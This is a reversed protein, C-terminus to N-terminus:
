APRTGDLLELIGLLPILVWDPRSNLEYRLEYVAKELLLVDLLTQFDERRAPLFAAGHSADLYGRLFAASVWRRWIALRAELPARADSGEPVVGRAVQARAATHVAYHFSRLMGAVDRLAPRKLRRESLTRAPEGEFDIIVFDKGTYLVQGLHYDGHCRTRLGTTKIDLVSRLRRMVDEELELLRRAM